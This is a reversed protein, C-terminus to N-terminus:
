KHHVEHPPQLLGNVPVIIPSLQVIHQREQFVEGCVLVVNDDCPSCLSPKSSFQSFVRVHELGDWQPTNGSSYLMYRVSSCRECPVHCRETSHHSRSTHTQYAAEDRYSMAERWLYKRLLSRLNTSPLTCASLTDLTYKIREKAVPVLRYSRGQRLEHPGEQHFRANKLVLRALQHGCQQRRNRIPRRCGRLPLSFHVVALEQCPLYPM